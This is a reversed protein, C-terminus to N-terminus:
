SNDAAAIFSHEVWQTGNYYLLLSGGPAIARTAAGLAINADDVTITNTAKSVLLLLQGDAVGSYVISDVQDATSSEPLVDVYPKTVTLVGTAITAQEAAGFGFSSTTGFTVAGTFSVPGPFVTAGTSTGGITITGSGKADITLNENTGSSIAAVAVGSAAAAATISIGTASSGGATSVKLAPNTTGQRGVALANANTATITFPGAYGTVEGAANIVTTVTGDPSVIKIIDEGPALDNVFENGVYLQYVQGSGPM